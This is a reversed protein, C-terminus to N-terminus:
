MVAELVNESRYLATGFSASLRGFEREREKEM